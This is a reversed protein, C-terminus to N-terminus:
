TTRDGSHDTKTDDGPVSDHYGRGGWGNFCELKSPHNKSPDHSKLRKHKRPVSMIHVVANKVHITKREM